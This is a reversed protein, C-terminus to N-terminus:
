CRVSCLTPRVDDGAETLVGLWTLGHLGYTAPGERQGDITCNAMCPIHHRDGRGTSATTRRAHSKRGTGGKSSSALTRWAPSPTGSRGQSGSTAPRWALSPTGTAGRQGTTCSAMCAGGAGIDTLVRLGQEYSGIAM